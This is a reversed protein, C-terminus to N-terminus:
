SLSIRSYKISSMSFETSYSHIGSRLTSHELKRYAIRHAPNIKDFDKAEKTLVLHKGPSLILLDKGTKVSVSKGGTDELDYISVLGDTPKLVAVISNASIRIEGV